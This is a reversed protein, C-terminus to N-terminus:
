MGETTKLLCNKDGAVVIVAQKNDDLTAINHLDYVKDDRMTAEASLNDHVADDDLQFGEPVLACRLHQMPKINSWM